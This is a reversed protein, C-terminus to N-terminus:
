DENRSCSRWTRRCATATAHQATRSPNGTCAAATHKPTEGRVNRCQRLREDRCPRSAFGRPRGTDRDTVVRVEDVGGHASFASQLADQTTTFSLNGVYIKM